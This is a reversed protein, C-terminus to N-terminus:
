VISFVPQNKSKPSAQNQNTLLMQQITLLIIWPDDYQGIEALYDSGFNNIESIVQSMKVSTSGQLIKVLASNQAFERSVDTM